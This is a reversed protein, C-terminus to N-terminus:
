VFLMSMVMMTSVDGFIIEKAVYWPYKLDNLATIEELLVFLCVFLFMVGKGRM